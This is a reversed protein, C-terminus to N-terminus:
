STPSELWKVIALRSDLQQQNAELSSVTVIHEASQTATSQKAILEQLALIRKGYAQPDLRLEYALQNVQFAVQQLEECSMGTPQKQPCQQIAKQLQNPNLQYYRQTYAHSMGGWLALMVFLVQKTM